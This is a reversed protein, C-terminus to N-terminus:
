ARQREVIPTAIHLAETVTAVVTAIEQPQMYPFLPLNLVHRSIWEAVAGGAKGVLSDAAGPQQSMPSPYINGFGIAKAKLAAEIRKKDEESAVFCVNCYGNEEYGEPVEAVTLAPACAKLQERYAAATARRSAIRADIYDLALNLFAAQLSDLRSNWGVHSHGYHSARGHNSLCRVTTALAEDRCFVAGGDGAGGLVKAPYFSTTAIEAGAFLSEGHYRVGFAQAGDEILVVGADRCVTRLAKLRASGWGYLHVVMVAKPKVTAILEAVMDVDIGQDDRNCDVTYPNAGVNVVAEYTAWFTMDPLLVTDGRGVGVARLALQLADTGNACSVVHAAGTHERLRKELTAVPEGGIFQAQASLACVTENWRELLGPEFRKLDIFPVPSM